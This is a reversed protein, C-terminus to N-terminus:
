RKYPAYRVLSGEHSTVLWNQYPLWPLSNNALQLWGILMAFSAFVASARYFLRGTAGEILTPMGSYVFMAMPWFYLVFRYAGVSSILILPLCALAGWALHTLLSSQGFVLQWKQRTALYLAGAIAVAGVQVIAGPASMNSASGVYLRSYAEMSNPAFRVIALVLLIAVVVSGTKIVPPAKSGLAVFAMMFVASFHFLCALLVFAIKVITRRQEWTALLYAIIGLSIAQRAGSMAFAVVLLPTAISVAIWPESCRRAVSFFGLCFILGSVANIFIIGGGLKAAIWTLLGYGPERNLILHSLSQGKRWDYIFIYNNWDMGVQFRFGVMLFYLLGVLLLLFGGRRAGTLALSSPVALM